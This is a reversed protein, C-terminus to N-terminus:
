PAEEEGRSDAAMAQNFVSNFEADQAAATHPSQGRNAMMFATVEGDGDGESQFWQGLRLASGIFQPTTSLMVCPSMRWAHSGEDSILLRSLTNLHYVDGNTVSVFRLGEMALVKMLRSLYPQKTQPIRLTALLEALSASGGCRQLADPIGLKVACHLAM